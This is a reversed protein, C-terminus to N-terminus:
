EESWTCTLLSVESPGLNLDIGLEIESAIWNQLVATTDYPVAAGERMVVLNGIRLELLDPRLTARSSGVAAFLPGWDVVGRLLAQRVARSGAVADAVARASAPSDAGRVRVTIIKGDTAADRVIQQALDNCLADLAEQFAGFERSSSELVLSGDAAGNALILVTDNPSAEGDLSIRNFSRTVSQQLAQQLLEPTIALDTTILSLMTAMRPHVLRRGKAMGALMCRQGGGLQVRFVREKPRSDSTLIALAARRGGGSDLESVARRIGERLRPMPLPVGILGTSMLLVADRPVELEDAVLRACEIADNLGAQGTGANAQGANILVARLSQRNRALIAQSLFVPAARTLSETFLAAASAEQLSHILALDRAKSAEKLGSSIGTARYGSPSAIHGEEVTAYSM